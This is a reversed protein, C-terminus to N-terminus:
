IQHNYSGRFCKVMNLRGNVVCKSGVLYQKSSIIEFGWTDVLMGAQRKDHKVDLKM